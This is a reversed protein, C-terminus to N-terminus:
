DEKLFINITCQAVLEDGIVVKGEAVNVGLATTIIKLETQLIEGVKAARNISLKKVSGIFGVKVQGKNAKANCGELAAATQAINEILAAEELKGKNVLTAGEKIKFQTCVETKSFSLVEDVFVFPAKQPILEDISWEVM